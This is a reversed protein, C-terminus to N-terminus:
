KAWDESIKVCFKAWFLLKSNTWSIRHWGMKLCLRLLFHDKKHSMWKLFSKLPTKNCQIGKFFDWDTTHWHFQCSQLYVHWKMWSVNNQNQVLWGKSKSRVATHKTSICCLGIKDNKAQGSMPKCGCYVASWPFYSFSVLYLMILLSYSSISSFLQCCSNYLEKYDWKQVFQFGNGCRFMSHVYLCSM